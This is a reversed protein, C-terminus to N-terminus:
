YREIFNCECHFKPYQEFIHGSGTIREELASRQELFDPQLSLIQRACCNRRTLDDDVDKNLCKKCVLNIREKPWLNREELIKKIGKPKERLNEVSYDNPFIISQKCKDEHENIYWGDHMIPQKGEPGLNMKTIILANKAM